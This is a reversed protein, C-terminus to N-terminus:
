PRTVVHTLVFLAVAVVVVNTLGFELTTVLALGWVLMGAFLASLVANLVILVRPDGESSEIGEQLGDPDDDPNAM